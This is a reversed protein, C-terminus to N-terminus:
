ILKSIHQTLANKSGHISTCFNCKFKYIINRHMVRHRNLRINSRFMAPCDPCKITKEGHIMQHVKLYYENKFGKGCISCLFLKGVLNFPFCCTLCLFKEFSFEILYTSQSHKNMHAALRDPHSFRTRCIDCKHVSSDKHHKEHIDRLLEMGYIKTCKGCRHYITDTKHENDIHQILKATADFSKTCYECQICQESGCVHCDLEKATCIEYCVVCKKDPIEHNRTLHVRIDRLSYAKLKCIYCEFHFFEDLKLTREGNTTVNVAKADRITTEEFIRKCHVDTMHKQLETSTKFEM